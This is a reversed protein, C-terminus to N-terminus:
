NKVMRESDYLSEEEDMGAGPVSPRRWCLRGSRASVPARETARREKGESM